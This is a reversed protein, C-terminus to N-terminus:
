VPSTTPGTEPGDGASPRARVVQVQASTVIRDVAPALTAPGTGSGAKRRAIQQPRPTSTDRLRAIRHSAIRHSAIRHSAIRHRVCWCTTLPFSSPRLIREERPDRAIHHTASTAAAQQGAGWRPGRSRCRAELGDGHGRRSIGCPCGIVISVPAPVVLPPNSRGSRILSGDRVLLALVLVAAWYEWPEPAQVHRVDPRSVVTRYMYM